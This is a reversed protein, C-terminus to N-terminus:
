DRRSKECANCARRALSQRPSAAADGTGRRPKEARLHATRNKTESSAARGRNKNLRATEGLEKQQALEDRNESGMSKERLAGAPTTGDGTGRRPARTQVATGKRCRKGCGRRAVGRPSGAVGRNGRDAENERFCIEPDHKTKAAAPKQTRNNV